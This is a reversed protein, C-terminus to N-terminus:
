GNQTHHLVGCHEHSFIGDLVFAVGFPFSRAIWGIMIVFIWMMMNQQRQM